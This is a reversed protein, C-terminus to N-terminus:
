RSIPRQDPEAAEGRALMLEDLWSVTSVEKGCPGTLLTGETVTADAVGHSMREAADDRRFQSELDSPGLRPAEASRRKSSRGM